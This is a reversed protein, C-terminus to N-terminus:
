GGRERTGTYWVLLSDVVGVVGTYSVLLWDLFSPRAQLFYYVQYSNLVYSNDRIDVILYKAAQTCLARIQRLLATEGAGRSHTILAITCRARGYFFPSIFILHYSSEDQQIGVYM